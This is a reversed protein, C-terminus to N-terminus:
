AQARPFQKGDLREQYGISKGKQILDLLEIDNYYLWGLRKGTYIKLNKRQRM